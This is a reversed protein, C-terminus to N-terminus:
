GGFIERSGYIVLQAEAKVLSREAAWASVLHGPTGKAESCQKSTM